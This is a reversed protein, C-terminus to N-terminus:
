RRCVRSDRGARRARRRCRLRIRRWPPRSPLRLFWRCPCRRFKGYPRKHFAVGRCCFRRARQCGRWPRFLLRAVSPFASPLFPFSLPPLPLFSSCHSASPLIGHRPHQPTGCNQQPFSPPSRSSFLLRAAPFFPRPFIKQFFPPRSPRKHRSKRIKTQWYRYFSFILSM